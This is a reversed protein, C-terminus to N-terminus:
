SATKSILKLFRPQTKAVAEAKTDRTVPAAIALFADLESQPIRYRAGLSGTSINVARIRGLRIHAYVLDEKAGIAEAFQKVTLLM